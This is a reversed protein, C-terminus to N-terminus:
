PLSSQRVRVEFQEVLHNQKRYYAVIGDKSGANFHKGARRHLGELQAETKKQTGFTESSLRWGRSSERFGRTCNNYVPSPLM